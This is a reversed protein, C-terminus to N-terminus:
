EVELRFSVRAPPAAVLPDNEVIRRSRPRRSTKREKEKGESVEGAERERKEEEVMENYKLIVFDHCWFPIIPTPLAELWKLILGSFLLPDSLTDASPVALFSLCSPVLM